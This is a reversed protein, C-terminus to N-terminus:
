LSSGYRNRRSAGLRPAIIGLIIGLALVAAGILFWNQERRRALRDNEQELTALSIDAESLSERLRTNEANIRLTEASVRRIEALERKLDANETELRRIQQRNAAEQQKLDDLERGQDGSQGRLAEVRATLAALQERAAPENMLFRTLVYGETGGSTRVHSYGTEEDRELEEVATGSTLVRTIANQLTPGRRMMVEFDDTVYRTQAFADSAAVLIWLSAMALVYRSGVMLREM